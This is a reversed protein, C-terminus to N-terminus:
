ISWHLDLWAFWNKWQLKCQILNLAFGACVVFNMSYSCCLACLCQQPLFRESYFCVKETKGGLKWGKNAALQCGSVTGATMVRIAGQRVKLKFCKRRESSPFNSRREFQEPHTDSTYEALWFRSRKVMWCVLMYVSDPAEKWYSRSSISVNHTRLKKAPCGGDVPHLM